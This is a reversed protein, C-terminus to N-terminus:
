IDHSFFSVFVFSAQNSIQKSECVEFSLALGQLWCCPQAGLHEGLQAEGNGGTHCLQAELQFGHPWSTGGLQAM